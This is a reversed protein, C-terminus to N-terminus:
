ELVSPLDVAAAAPRPEKFSTSTTTSTYSGRGTMPASMKSLRHVTTLRCFLGAQAVCAGQIVYMAAACAPGLFTNSRNFTGIYSFAVYGVGGIFIVIATRRTLKAATIVLQIAKPPTETSNFKGFGLNMHRMAFYFIVWIVMVWLSFFGVSIIFLRGARLPVVVVIIVLGILLTIWSAKKMSRDHQGSKFKTSAWAIFLLNLGFFLNTCIGFFIAMAETVNFFNEVITFADGDIILIYLARSLEHLFISIAFVLSCIETITLSDLKLIKTRNRTLSVTKDVAFSLAALAILFYLAMMVFAGTTHECLSTLGQNKLLDTTYLCSCVGPISGSGPTCIAHFHCGAKVWPKLAANGGGFDCYEM